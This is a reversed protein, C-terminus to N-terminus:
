RFHRWCGDLDCVEGGTLLAFTRLVEEFQLAKFVVVVRQLTSQSPAASVQAAKM